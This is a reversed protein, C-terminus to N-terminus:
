NCRILVLTNEKESMGDVIYEINNDSYFYEGNTFNHWNIVSDSTLLEMLISTDESYILYGNNLVAKMNEM